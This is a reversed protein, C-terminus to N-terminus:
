AAEDESSDDGPWSGTVAAFGRRSAHDIAGRVLKIVAGEILLAGVLKPWTARSQNPQPPEADDVIAWAREFLKKSLRGAILGSLISLPAYLLKM